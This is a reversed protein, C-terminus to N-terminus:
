GVSASFGVGTSRAGHGADCGVEITCPILRLAGGTPQGDGEPWANLSWGVGQLAVAAGSAAM